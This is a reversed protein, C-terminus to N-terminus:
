NNNNKLIVNIKVMIAAATIKVLYIVHKACVIQDLYM